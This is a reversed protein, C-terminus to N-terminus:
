LEVWDINIRIENGVGVNDRRILLKHGPALLVIPIRSYNRLDTGTSFSKLNQGTATIVPQDYLKGEPIVISNTKLPTVSQANGLSSFSPNLSIHWTAYTASNLFLEFNQFLIYKTASNNHFLAVNEPIGLSNRVIEAHFMYGDNLQNPCPIM